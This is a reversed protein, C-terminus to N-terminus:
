YSDLFCGREEIKGGIGGDMDDRRSTAAHRTGEAILFVMVLSRDSDALHDEERGNTFGDLIVRNVMGDEDSCGAGRAARLYM